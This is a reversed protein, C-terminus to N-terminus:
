SSTVLRPIGCAPLMIRALFSLPQGVYRCFSPSFVRFTLNISNITIPLNNFNNGSSKTKVEPESSLQIIKMLHILVLVLVYIDVTILNIFELM